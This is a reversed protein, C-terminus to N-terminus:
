SVAIVSRAGANVVSNHMVVTGEEVFANKSVYSRPSIIAPLQFKLEKLKKYTEIRIKPHGIQGIAIIANDFDKRIRELDKDNGLVPYGLVETKSSGEKDVVGKINFEGCQEVVDICSKCYLAGILIIQKM